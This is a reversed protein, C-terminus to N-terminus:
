LNDARNDIDVKIGVPLQDQRGNVLRQHDIRRVSAAQYNFNLLMYSLIGYAADCHIGGVAQTASQLDLSGTARHSHRHAILDPAPHHVDDALADVSKRLEAGFARERYM